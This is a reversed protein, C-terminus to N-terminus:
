VRPQVQGSGPAYDRLFCREAEATGIIIIEDLPGLRLSPDPNIQLGDKTHVAIISCGTRARIDTEALVKGALSPPVALRIVNLGEALMLLNDPRLLNILTNAGLSAESMVLDAGAAHLTGVNRDLTARSVIQIDPRLKRCYITLYINLDDNHTSIFVSPAERIGAALLTDLDAASGLVYKDADRVAKPNKEVIRYSIGREELVQAAAQGVRGGGLVIVPASHPVTKGMVADYREFQENTGALVLVTSQGILTDPGPIHFNGREWVGVVSVGTTERLRSDRLRKGQLPTRMAPAEAILLGDLRGIVNARTSSGILRRALAQGLLKTFQFVHSSGTLSLIDLSDDMDATAIVTASSTLERVTFAINTNRMDDNNVFVMAAGEVRLRRYTEPDDLEGVMVKYGQDYLELARPLDAQLLAYDYGYQILRKAFSASVPDFSTLIVHGAKGSPLERPARAKAQADLWPAYFFQIFSFPLMVLLYIVGTLLVLLSFARGLDTTFTIDGFGLTSMVTLTWYIGTLWTHDRGELRMLYHFVVSYVAVLVAIIALYQLLKSVNRRATRSQFFYMLQSPMYKM